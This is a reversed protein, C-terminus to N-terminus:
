AVLCFVHEDFSFIQDIFIGKVNVTASYNIVYKIFYSFIMDGLESARPPWDLLSWVVLFIPCFFSLLPEM